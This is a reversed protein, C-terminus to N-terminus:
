LSLEDKVINIHTHTLMITHLIIPLGTSYEKTIEILHDVREWVKDTTNLLKM